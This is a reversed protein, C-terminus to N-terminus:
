WAGRQTDYSYCDDGKGSSGDVLKRHIVEPPTWPNRGDSTDDPGRGNQGWLTSGPPMEYAVHTKGNEVAVCSRVNEYYAFKRRRKNITRRKNM